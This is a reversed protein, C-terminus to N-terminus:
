VNIVILYLYIYRGKWKKNSHIYRNIQTHSLSISDSASTISEYYEVTKNLTDIIYLEVRKAGATAPKRHLVKYAHQNNEAYDTYELNNINNNLKNGDIHNIVPLCNPNELFTAAIIQHTYVMKRKSDKNLAFQLYGNKNQKQKIITGKRTQSKGTHEFIIRDLSRINGLNSCQYFGEYNKIDKWIEEM